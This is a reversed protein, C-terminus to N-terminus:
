SELRVKFVEFDAPPDTTDGDEEQPEENDDDTKSESDADLNQPDTYTCTKRVPALRGPRLKLDNWQSSHLLPDRKGNLVNCGHAM